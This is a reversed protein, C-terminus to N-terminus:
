ILGKRLQTKDNKMNADVASVSHGNFVGNAHKHTTHTARRRRTDTSIESAQGHEQTRESVRRYRVKRESNCGPRSARGTRGIPHRRDSRKDSARTPTHRALQVHVVEPLHHLVGAASLELVVEEPLHGLGCRSRLALQNSPPTETEETSSSSQRPTTDTEGTRAPITTRSTGHGVRLPM